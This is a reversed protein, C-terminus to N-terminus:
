AVRAREPTAPPGALLRDLRARAEELDGELSAPRPRRGDPGPTVPRDDAPFLEVKDGPALPTDSGREGNNVVARLRRGTTAVVDDATTGPAFAEVTPEAAAAASSAHDMVAVLVRRPPASASAADAGARLGKSLYAAFGCGPAHDPFTCTAHQAVDAALAAMHHHTSAAHADLEHCWTTLWRAWAVRADDHADRTGESPDVTSSASSSSSSGDEKVGDEKYRWHAAVGHEAILHMKRTRVQLEVPRGDPGVVVSHLSQYGNPKPSRIYDKSRSGDTDAVPRWLAHVAREAAYCEAKTEVLVRVARADHVSELPLGKAVMKVHLGYLNKARGAVDAHPLGATDLASRVSDLVARVSDAAAAPAAAAALAAHEAPHLVAFAADELAAKLSWVGLRNALPAHIDLAARGAARAARTGDAGAALRAKLDVLAEGVSIVLARVDAMSVLMAIFRSTLADISPLATADSAVEAAVVAEGATYRRLLCLDTMRTVSTVLTLVDADVVSGLASETAVGRALSAHLVAAAVSPADAGLDAVVRAVAAAHALMPGGCAATQGDHVVRAVAWARLVPASTFVPHSSQLHPSTSPTPTHAQFSLSPPPAERDVALVAAGNATQSTPRRAALRQFAGRARARGRGEGRGRAGGVGKGGM